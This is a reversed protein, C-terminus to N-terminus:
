VYKFLAEVDAVTIVKAGFEQMESIARRVDGPTLDIGRCCDIIVFTEFGLARADKVSYLV